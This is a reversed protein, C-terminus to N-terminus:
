KAAAGLIVAALFCTVATARLVWGRPGTDAGRAMDAIVVAMCGVAVVALAVAAPRM